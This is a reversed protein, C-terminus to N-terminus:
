WSKINFLINFFTAFLGADAAVKKDLLILFLYSFFLVM